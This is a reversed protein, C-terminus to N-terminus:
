NPERFRVRHQFHGQNAAASARPLQTKTQPAARTPRSITGLGTPGRCHLPRIPDGQPSSPIAQTVAVTAATGAAEAGCGALAVDFLAFAPAALPPRHKM